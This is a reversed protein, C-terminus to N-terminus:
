TIMDNIIIINMWRYNSVKETTGTSELNIRAYTSKERGMEVGYGTWTEQRFLLPWSLEVNLFSAMIKFSLLSLYIVHNPSLFPTFSKVMNIHWFNFYFIKFIFYFLFLTSSSWTNTKRCLPHSQTCHYFSNRLKEHSHKRKTIEESSHWQWKIGLNFPVYMNVFNTPLFFLM